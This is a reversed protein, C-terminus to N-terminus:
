CVIFFNSGMAEPRMSSLVQVKITERMSLNARHTLSGQPQDLLMANAIHVTNGTDATENRANNLLTLLYTLLAFLLFLVYM